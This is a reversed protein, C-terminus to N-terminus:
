LRFLFIPMTLIGRGVINVSNRRQEITSQSYSLNTTIIKTLTIPNIFEILQTIPKNCQDTITTLSPLQHDQDYQHVRHHDTQQMSRHHYYWHHYDIIKTMNTFEITIPKNCQDTITIDTITTSSRPWIPSSSPSRNTANIPSPLILSPLRHDQDYQHVRHHDTQQMSRHHYDVIKTLATLDSITYSPPTTCQVRPITYILHYM